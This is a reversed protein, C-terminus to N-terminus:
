EDAEADYESAVTLATVVYGTSREDEGFSAVLEAVGDAEDEIWDLAAGPIERRVHAECHARAAAATAYLGLPVTNCWARYVAAPTSEGRSPATDKELEATKDAMRRLETIATMLGPGRTDGWGDEFRDLARIDTVKADLADAAERLVEARGSRAARDTNLLEVLYVALEPCEVEVAPAPCCDYVSGDDPDHHEDGCVPVIGDPADAANAIYCTRWEPLHPPTAGTWAPLARAAADRARDLASM